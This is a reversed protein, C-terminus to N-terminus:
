AACEASRPQYVRRSVRGMAESAAAVDPYRGAAVAAHIAAGLAAAHPTGILRLPRRTVDAYRQMLGADALPGAVLVIEIVPLGATEFAEVIPGPGAEYGWAGASIGEYVVGRVGAVAALRLGNM